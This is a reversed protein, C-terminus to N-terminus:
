DIIADFANNINRDEIQDLVAQVDTLFKKTIMYNIRMSLIANEEHSEQYM